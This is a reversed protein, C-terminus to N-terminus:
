GLFGQRHNRVAVIFAVFGCFGNQRHGSRADIGIPTLSYFKGLLSVFVALLQAFAFRDCESHGTGQLQAIAIISSALMLLM